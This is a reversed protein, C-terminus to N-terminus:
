KTNSKGFNGRAVNIKEIGKSAVKENRIELYHRDLMDKVTAQSHGTISAIENYTLDLEYLYYITSHRLHMAIHNNMGLHDCIERVKRSVNDTQWPKNTIENIFMFFDGSGTKEYRNYLKNTAPFSVKAGTKSQTYQLHGSKYNVHNRMKVVDGMRQATEIMTLVISGLSHFGRRDAETVFADIDQESWITIPRKDKKVPALELGDCPNIQIFDEDMARRCLTTILGKMRKRLTPTDDLTSLYAILHKRKLERIHPHGNKASWEHIRRLYTDYDRQTKPTLNDWFASAKYLGILHPFTGSRVGIKIGAHLESKFDMYEQYVTEAQKVLYSMSDKDTRGLKISPKWGDPRDKPHVKFYVDQYIKRKVIVVHPVNIDIKSMSSM